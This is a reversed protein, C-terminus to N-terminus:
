MYEFIGMVSVLCIRLSTMFCDVQSQCLVHVKLMTHCRSKLSNGHKSCRTSEEPNNGLTQLKFELMKSCEKQEMKV